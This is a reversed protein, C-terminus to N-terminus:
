FNLSKIDVQPQLYNKVCKFISQMLNEIEGKLGTATYNCIFILNIYLM